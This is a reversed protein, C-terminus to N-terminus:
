EYYRNAYKSTEGHESIFPFRIHKGVSTFDDLGKVIWQCDDANTGSTIEWIRDPSRGMVVAYDASPKRVLTHDKTGDAVGCVDFGVGPDPGFDGVCDLAVYSSSTGQLLCWGDDGNSLYQNTEDCVAQVAQDASPHCVIYTMGPGVTASSAFTNWFDHTGTVDAGNSASGLAYLSLDLTNGTPNFLEIYKNNSSGEAMESIFFHDGAFPVRTPSSTPLLSPMPTPAFTKTPAPSPMMTPALTPMPTCPTASNPPCIVTHSGVYDHTDKDYIEWQCNTVSTFEWLAESANAAGIAAQAAAVTDANAKRVLTKDATAQSVGCVDWGSGPDGQYDGVCDMFTFTTADGKLLCIADDGNHYAYGTEDCEAAIAANSGPNCYVYVDGSAITANPAFTNQYEWEGPPDPDNSTTGFYYGSLSIAADTPNYIELYKNNSGGESYESIFLDLQPQPKVDPRTARPSMM